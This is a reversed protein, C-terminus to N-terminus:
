PAHIYFFFEFVFCPPWLVLTIWWGCMSLPFLIKVQVRLFWLMWLSSCSYAKLVNFLRCDRPRLLALSGSAGRLIDRGVRWNASGKLLWGPAQSSLQPLPSAKFGCAESSSMMWAFLWTSSAWHQATFIPTGPACPACLWGTEGIPHAGSELSLWRRLLVFHILGSSHCGLSVETHTCAAKVCM